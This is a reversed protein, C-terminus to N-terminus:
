HHTRNFFTKFPKMETSYYCKEWSTKSEGDTTDSIAEMNASFLSHTQSLLVTRLADPICYSNTFLTQM